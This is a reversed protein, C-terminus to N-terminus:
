NLRVDPLGPVNNVVYVGSGSADNDGVSRINNQKAHM